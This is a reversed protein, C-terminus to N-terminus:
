VKEGHIDMDNSNKKFHYLMYFRYYPCHKTNATSYKFSWHTYHSFHRVYFLTCKQVLIRCFQISIADSEKLKRNFNFDNAHSVQCALGASALQKLRFYSVIPLIVSCVVISITNNSIPVINLMSIIDTFYFHEKLRKITAM